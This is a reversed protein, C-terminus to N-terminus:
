PPTPPFTKKSSMLRLMDFAVILRCPPVPVTPLFVSPPSATLRVPVNFLILRDNLVRLKRLSMCFPVVVEYPSYGPPVHGIADPVMEVQPVRYPGPVKVRECFKVDV